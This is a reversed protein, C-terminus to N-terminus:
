IRQNTVNVIVDGELIRLVQSMRPRSHPDRQICLSACQVMNHVQAESYCNGLQPDILEHIAQKELLPRAWESLCQQGRPRNVDIARRGTVLEVLVMGFSYVDAKETM